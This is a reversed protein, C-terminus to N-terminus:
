DGYKLDGIKKALSGVWIENKPVNGKVVSCAGIISNDGIKSNPLIVSNAGIRVNKGIIVKGCINSITDHSYVKVGGGLQAGEGVEIGYKCDLISFAGIDTFKGLKLGKPYLVLWNYETLKGHKIKPRKWSKFRKEM